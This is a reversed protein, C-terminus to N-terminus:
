KVRKIEAIEPFNTYIRTMIEEGDNDYINISEGIMEYFLNGDKHNMIVRGKEEKLFTTGDKFLIEKIRYDEDIKLMEEGTSYLFTLFEAEKDLNAVVLNGKLFNVSGDNLEETRFGIDVVEGNNAEFLLEEKENYIKIVNSITVLLRKGNEHYLINERKNKNSSMIKKGNKLYYENIINNKDKLEFSMLEGNKYFVETKFFENNKCLAKMIIDDESDYVECIGNMLGNIYQVKIKLNDYTIEFTGTARKENEYLIDNKIQYKPIAYTPIFFILMLLISLIKKMFSYVELYNKIM